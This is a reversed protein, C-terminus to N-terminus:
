ISKDLYYNFVDRIEIMKEKDLEFSYISKNYPNGWPKNGLIRQGNGNNDVLNLCYGENGKVINIKM